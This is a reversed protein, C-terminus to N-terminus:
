VARESPSLTRAVVAAMQEAEEVDAFTVGYSALTSTFVEEPTPKEGLLSSETVELAGALRELTTLSPSVHDNEYRSLTPKPIGSRASLDGQSMHAAHRAERLRNGLTLRPRDM